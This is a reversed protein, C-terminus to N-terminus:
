RYWLAKEDVPTLTPLLPNRLTLQTRQELKNVSFSSHNDLYANFLRDFSGDKIAMRLGRELRAALTVNGPAVFFYTPLPYSLLLSEEVAFGKGQHLPLEAWAENVGRPFYDFRKAQLMDFLADYSSSTGVKLQNARLIKTDPWDHGQGAILQGLQALTTIHKFKHQDAANIIFVRYGLLGKLLPIRVPLLVKERAITTVTWLVDLRGNRGAGLGTPSSLLRIARSQTMNAQHGQISFAKDFPTGSVTTKELALTLLTIFYGQRQDKEGEPSVYTVTLEAAVVTQGCLLMLGCLPSLVFCLSKM